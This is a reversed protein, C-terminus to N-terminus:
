EYNGAPSETVFFYVSFFIHPDNTQGLMKCFHDKCQTFAMINNSLTQRTREVNPRKNADFPYGQLLLDIACM